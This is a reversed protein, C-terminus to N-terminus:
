FGFLGPRRIRREPEQYVVQKAPFGQAIFLPTLLADRLLFKALLLIAALLAREHHQFFRQAPIASSYYPIRKRYTGRHIRPEIDIPTVDYCVLEQRHQENRLLAVLQVVLFSL